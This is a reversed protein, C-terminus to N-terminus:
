APSAQDRRKLADRLDLHYRATALVHEDRVNRVVWNLYGSHVTRLAGAAMNASRSAALYKGIPVADVELDSPLFIKVTAPTVLKGVRILSAIVEYIKQHASEAFHRPELFHAVDYFHNDNVLIAGLLVREIYIAHARQRADFDIRWDQSVGEPTDPAPEPATM